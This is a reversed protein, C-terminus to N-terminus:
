ATVSEPGRIAALRRKVYESMTGDEAESFPEEKIPMEYNVGDELVIPKAARTVSLRQPSRTDELVRYTHKWGDEQKKPVTSETSVKSLESRWGEPQRELETMHARAGGLVYKKPASESRDEVVIQKGYYKGDMVGDAADLAAAASVAASRAPSEIVKSERVVKRNDAFHGVAVIPNGYYKGDMVGDAADLAAAASMAQTQGRNEVVKEVVIPKGYYKGDMVGDAADLAVAAAKVGDTSGLAQAVSAVAERSPGTTTDVVIPKGYYKGDM